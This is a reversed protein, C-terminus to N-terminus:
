ESKELKKRNLRLYTGTAHAILIGNEDKCDMETIVLTKGVKLLKGKAILKVKKAPRLLHFSIESTTVIENTALASTFFGANDLITAIAGGHIAGEGHDLNPNYPLTIIANDDEDISLEMGFTKVIPPYKNFSEILISRFNM